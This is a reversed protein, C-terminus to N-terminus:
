PRGGLTKVLRGQPAQPWRNIGSTFVQRQKKGTSQSHPAIKEAHEFRRHQMARGPAALIIAATRLQRYNGTRQGFLQVGTGALRNTLRQTHIAMLKLYHSHKSIPRWDGLVVAQNAAVIKLGAFIDKNWKTGREIKAKTKAAVDIARLVGFLGPQRALQLGFAHHNLVPHFDFILLLPAGIGIIQLGIYSLLLRETTKGAFDIVAQKIDTLPEVKVLYDAVVRAGRKPKRQTEQQDADDIGHTQQQGLEASPRAFDTHATCESGRAAVYKPLVQELGPHQTQGARDQAQQKGQADEGENAM